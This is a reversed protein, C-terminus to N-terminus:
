LSVIFFCGVVDVVWFYNSLGRIREFVLEGEGGKKKYRVRWFCLGFVSLFWGGFFVFLDGVRGVELEGIM